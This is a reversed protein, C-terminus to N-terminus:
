VRRVETRRRQCAVEPHRDATSLHAMDHLCRTILFLPPTSYTTIPPPPPHKRTHVSQQADSQGLRADANAATLLDAIYAHATDDDARVDALTGAAMSFFILVSVSPLQM